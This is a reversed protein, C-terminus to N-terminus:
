DDIKRRKLIISDYEALCPQKLRIQNLDDDKLKVKPHTRKPTMEQHLINEIYDAGFANHAMAKDMAYILATLGYQDKM